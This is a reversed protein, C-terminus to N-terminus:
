SRFKQSSRRPPTGNSDYVLVGDRGVIAISNGDLGVDGYPRSMFLYVGRAIEIRTPAPRGKGTLVRPAAAVIAAAAALAVFRRM